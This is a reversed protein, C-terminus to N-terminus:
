AAPPPAVPRYLDLSYGRDLIVVQCGPPVVQRLMDGIQRGSEATLADSTRFVLIDGPALEVLRLCRAESNYVARAVVKGAAVFEVVENENAVIVGRGVVIFITESSM